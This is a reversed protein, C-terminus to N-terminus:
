LKQEDNANQERYMSLFSKAISEWKFKANVLKIANRSLEEKREDTTSHIYETLTKTIQDIDLDIWWGCDFNNM